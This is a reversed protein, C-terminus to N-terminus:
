VFDEPNLNLYHTLLHNTQWDEQWAKEEEQRDVTYRSIASAAYQSAHYSASYALIDTTVIASLVAKRDADSAYSSWGIIGTAAALDEYSAQGLAYRRATEIIQRPRSDNPYRSEFHSLAREACDAAFLRLNRGNWETVQRVLKASRAVVKDPEELMGVPDAEVIWLESAICWSSFDQKRCLHYGSECPVLDPITKTWEGQPPWQGDGGFCPQRNHGLFKFYYKM